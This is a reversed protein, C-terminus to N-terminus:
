EQRFRLQYSGAFLRLVSLVEHPQESDLSGSVHEQLRSDSGPLGLYWGLANQM